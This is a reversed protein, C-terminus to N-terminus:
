SSVRVATAARRRGWKVFPPCVIGNVVLIVIVAAAFGGVRAITGIPTAPQEPTSISGLADSSVTLTVVQDLRGRM